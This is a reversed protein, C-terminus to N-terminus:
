WDERDKKLDNGLKLLENTRAQMLKQEAALQAPTKIVPRHIYKRILDGPLAALGIGAFIVFIFWGVWATLAAMYTAFSTKIEM